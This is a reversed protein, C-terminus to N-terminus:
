DCFAEEYDLWGNWVDEMVLKHTNETVIVSAADSGYTEHELLLLHRSGYTKRDIVYWTGRHGEVRIGDMQIGDILATIQFLADHIAENESQIYDMKRLLLRKDFSEIPLDGKKMDSIDCEILRERQTATNDIRYALKELIKKIAKEHEMKTDGRTYFRMGEPISHRLLFRVKGTERVMNQAM